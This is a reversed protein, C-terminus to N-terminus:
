LAFDRMMNCARLYDGENISQKDNLEEFIDLVQHMKGQEIFQMMSKYETDTMKDASKLQSCMEKFQSKASNASDRVRIHQQMRQLYRQIAQQGLFIWDDMNIADVFDASQSFYPSQIPLLRRPTADAAPEVTPYRELVTMNYKYVDIATRKNVRMTKHYPIMEKYEITITYFHQTMYFIRGYCYSADMRPYERLKVIRGIAIESQM